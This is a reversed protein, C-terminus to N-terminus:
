WKRNSKNWGMSKTSSGQMKAMQGLSWGVGLSDNFISGRAVTTLVAWGYQLLSLVGIRNKTTISTLSMIKGCHGAEDWTECMPGFATFHFHQAGKFNRLSLFDASFSTFLSSSMDFLPGRSGETREQVSLQSLLLVRHPEARTAVTGDLFWSGLRRLECRWRPKEM